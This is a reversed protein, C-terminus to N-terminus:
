NEYVVVAEKLRKGPKFVPANHMKILTKKGTKPNKFVKPARRKFWFSGFGNITVWHGYSTTKSGERFVEIVTDTFANLAKEADARSISAKESISKILEKKIM